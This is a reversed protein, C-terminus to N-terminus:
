RIPVRATKDFRVVVDLNGLLNKRIEYDITIIMEGGSQEVLIDEPEVDTVMNIDLRKLITRVVGGPPMARIEYDNELNSVIAGVKYGDIYIPILKLAILTVFAILLFVLVWGIPTMGRQKHISIM